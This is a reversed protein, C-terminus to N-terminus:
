SIILDMCFLKQKVGGWAACICIRIYSGIACVVNLLEDENGVGGDFKMVGMLLLEEYWIIV